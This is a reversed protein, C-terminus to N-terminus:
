RNRRKKCLICCRKIQKYINGRYKLTRITAGTAIVTGDPLIESVIWPVMAKLRTWALCKKGGSCKFLLKFRYDNGDANTDM